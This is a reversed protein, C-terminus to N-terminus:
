DFRVSARMMAGEVGPKLRFARLPGSGDLREVPDTELLRANQGLGEVYDLTESRALLLEGAQTLVGSEGVMSGGVAGIGCRAAFDRVLRTPYLGGLKGVRLNFVQFAGERALRRADALSCLSEDAVFDVGFRAHLTRCAEVAAEDTEARVRADGASGKASGKAPEDGAGARPFPEEFSELATTGACASLLAEARAPDYRGNADVRLPTRGGLARDLALLREVDDPLGVKLKAVTAGALRAGVAHRRLEGTPIELGLTTCRGPARRRPPGLLRDLDVGEELGLANWLALEVGGFLATHAEFDSHHADIWRTLADQDPFRHGLVRSALRATAGSADRSLVAGVTEGTVYPRPLIEGFCVAGGATGLRVLVTDGHARSRAAHVFRRRFPLALHLLEISEIIM